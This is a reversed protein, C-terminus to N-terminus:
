HSSSGQMEETSEEWPGPAQFRLSSSTDWERVSPLTPKGGEEESGEYGSFSGGCGLFSGGCGSFSGGYGSFNRGGTKPLPSAEFLDFADAWWARAQSKSKPRPRSAEAWGSRARGKPGPNPFAWEEAERPIERIGKPGAEGLSKLSPVGLQEGRRFLPVGM